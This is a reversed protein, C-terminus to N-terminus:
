YTYIWTWYIIDGEGADIQDFIPDYHSFEGVLLTNSSGDTVEAMRVAKISIM